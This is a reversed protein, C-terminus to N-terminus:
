FTRILADINQFKWSLSWVHCSFYVLMVAGKKCVSIHGYCFVTGSFEVSNIKSTQHPLDLNYANCGRLCLKTLKKEPTWFICKIWTNMKFGELGPQLVLKTLHNILLDLILCFWAQCGYGRWTPIVLIVAARSRASNQLGIHILSSSRVFIKGFNPSCTTACDWVCVSCTNNLM